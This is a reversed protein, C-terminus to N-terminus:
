QSRNDVPTRSRGMRRAVYPSSRLAAQLEYVPSRLGVAPEVGKARASWQVARDYDRIRECATMVTCLTTWVANRDTMEGAVAATAAEDLRKMGEAVEGENVLAMGETALALMELDLMGLSRGAAVARGALERTAVTDNQLNLVLYADWLTLWGYEPTDELGELLRYARRMWGNAVAPQGRFELSDGALSTAMRAAGAKDGHKRYLQYARERAEFTGAEDHQWWCAQALGELAEPTEGEALAALFHSKAADWEGKALAERGADVTQIAM